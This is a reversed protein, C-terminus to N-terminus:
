KKKKKEEKEEKTEKKIGIDGVNLFQELDLDDQYNHYIDFYISKRLINSMIEFFNTKRIYEM